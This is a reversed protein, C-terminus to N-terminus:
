FNWLNCIYLLLNLRDRRSYFAYRRRLAIFLRKLRSKGKLLESFDEIEKAATPSLEHRFFRMTQMVAPSADIALQLTPSVRCVRSTRSSGGVGIANRRHQRYLMLPQDLYRRHGTAAAILGVHYDYPLLPQMRLARDRLSANIMSTAGQVCNTFLMASLGPLRGKSAMFRDRLVTLKTDSVVADCHVLVPLSPEGRQAILMERLTLEIKQPFWVDDQDCFMVYPATSLSLLHFFNRTFGLPGLHDSVLEIRPDESAAARLREVTDDLSGDDRVLLRWRRHTQAILSTFQQNLFDAGNFTGMLIEVHVAEEACLQSKSFDVPTWAVNVTKHSHSTRV